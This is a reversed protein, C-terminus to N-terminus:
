SAPIPAPPPTAATARLESLPSSQLKLGSDAELEKRGRVKKVMEIERHVKNKNTAFIMACDDTILNAEYAKVLEQDFTHWGRTTGAEIIDIFTRNEAEGYLLSERTRLSTGMIETILLRGGEIKTVLRQGVIYRITDALRQRVQQEDEKGFLGIIRNITQAADITHLTSFVLHGTESATLAIEMTERDRIEGVFIVKPAQRLAARLGEVFNPFDKGLERQSFICKQHPHVYEIPDELTVVHLEQTQNLENLIAALTTTKGSGTAGTVFVIGNKERVMEKFIPPLGLSEITPIEAPLKRMVISHRGNQKFINVRFRAVNALSYSCDCSGRAAFEQLLREDSNIVLAGVQEIQEETLRAGNTPAPFEKLLGHSQALPLKGAVFLFDHIHADAQLMALLLSDLWQQNM